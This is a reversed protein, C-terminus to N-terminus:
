FNFIVEKTKELFMGSSRILLSNIIDGFDHGIILSVVAIEGVRWHTQVRSRQPVLCLMVSV